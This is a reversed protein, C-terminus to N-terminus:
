RIDDYYLTEYHECKPCKWLEYTFNSEKEEMPTKCKPCIM